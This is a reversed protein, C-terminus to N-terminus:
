IKASLRILKPLIKDMGTSKKISINRLHKLVDDASIASLHHNGATLNESSKQPFSRIFSGKSM